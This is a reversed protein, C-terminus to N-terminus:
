HAQRAAAAAAATHADSARIEDLFLSVKSKANGSTNM